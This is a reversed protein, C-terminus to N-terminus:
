GQAAERIASLRASRGGFRSVRVGLMSAISGIAAWQSLHETQQELVM